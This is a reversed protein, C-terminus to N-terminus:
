DDDDLTQNLRWDSFTCRSYATKMAIFKLQDSIINQGGQKLEQLNRLLM